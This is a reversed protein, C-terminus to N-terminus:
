SIHKSVGISRAKGSDKLQEMAQWELLRNKSNHPSHILYLDVYDLQLAQLSRELADHVAKQVSEMSMKTQTRPPMYKTTVWIQERTVDPTTSLFKQIAKGVDAENRYIEATDIHRYGQKLAYLVAQETEGGNAAQYVGLGFRPIQRGDLLQLTTTINMPKTFSRFSYISIYKTLFHIFLYTLQLFM